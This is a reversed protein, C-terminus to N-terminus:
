LLLADAILRLLDVFLKGGAELWLRTDLILFAIIALSSSKSRAWSEFIIDAGYYGWSNYYLDM